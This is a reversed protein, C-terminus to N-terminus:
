RCPCLAPPGAAGAVTRAPRCALLWAAASWRFGATEAVRVQEAFPTVEEDTKEQYRQLAAQLRDNRREPADYNDPMVYRPATATICTPATATACYCYCHHMHTASYSGSAHAYQCTHSRGPVVV